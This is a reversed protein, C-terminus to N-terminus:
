SVAVQLGDMALDEPVQVRPCTLQPGDLDRLTLAHERQWLMDSGIQGAHQTVERVLITKAAQLTIIEHRPQRVVVSLDVRNMREPLAVTTGLAHEETVDCSSRPVGDVPGAQVRFAVHLGRAFAMVTFVLLQLLQEVAQDGM